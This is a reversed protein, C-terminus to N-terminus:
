SRRPRNRVIVETASWVEIRRPDGGALRIAEAMVVPVVRVTAVPQPRPPRRRPYRGAALGHVRYDASV